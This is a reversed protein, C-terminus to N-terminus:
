QGFDALKKYDITKLHEVVVEQDGDEAQILIRNDVLGMLQDDQAMFKMRGVRILQGGSAVVMAPNSLMAGMSAVMPNDALISISFDGGPGMYRAATASGGMIAMGGGDPDIQRTYGDMPEPLFLELSATKMQKLLQIAFNLEEQAYALDGDQYAELASEITDTVDDAQAPGALTVVAALAAIFRMLEGKMRHYNSVVLLRAVIWGRLADAKALKPDRRRRRM